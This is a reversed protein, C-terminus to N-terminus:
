LSTRVTQTIQQYFDENNMSGNVVTMIISVPPVPLIVQQPYEVFFITLSPIKTHYPQLDHWLQQGTTRIQTTLPRLWKRRSSMLPQYQTWLEQLRHKVAANGRWVSSPDSMIQMGQPLLGQNSQLAQRQHEHANVVEKLWEVWSSAQLGVQRLTDDGSLHANFPPVKLGDKELIWFCFDIMPSYDYRFLWSSESGTTQM